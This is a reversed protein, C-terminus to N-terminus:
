FGIVNLTKKRNIAVTSILLMIEQIKKLQTDMFMIFKLFWSYIEKKLHLGHFGPDMFKLEEMLVTFLNYRIGAHLHICLSLFIYPWRSWMCFNSFIHSAIKKCVILIMGQTGLQISMLTMAHTAMKILWHNMWELEEKSCSM